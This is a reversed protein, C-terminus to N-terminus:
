FSAYSRGRRLRKRIDASRETRRETLQQPIAPTSIYGSEIRAITRLYTFVEDLTERADLSASFRVSMRHWCVQKIPWTGRPEQNSLQQKVTAPFGFVIHSFRAPLREVFPLVAGDFGIAFRASFKGQKSKWFDWQASTSQPM